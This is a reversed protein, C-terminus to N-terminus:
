ITAAWFSGVSDADRTATILDYRGHTPTSPCAPCNTLHAKM